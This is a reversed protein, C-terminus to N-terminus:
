RCSGIFSNVTDIVTQQSDLPNKSQGHINLITTNPTSSLVEITIVCPLEKSFGETYNLIFKGSDISNVVISGKESIAVKINDFAGTLDKSISFEKSFEQGIAVSSAVDKVTDFLKNFM